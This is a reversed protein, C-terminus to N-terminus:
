IAETIHFATIRTDADIFFLVDGQAVRAGANRAAAIQRRDIRVVKADARSAIEPTGDASADDVVIIEYSQAARSAAVQISELTGALELEENHAPIIFSIM